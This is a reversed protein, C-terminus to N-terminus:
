LETRGKAKLNKKVFADFSKFDRSGKYETGAEDGYKFYMLKPYSKVGKRKCAPRGNESTCDVDGILVKSSGSHFNALQDWAPKM